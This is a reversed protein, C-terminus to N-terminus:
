RLLQDTFSPRSMAHPLNAGQSTHRNAPALHTFWRAPKAPAVTVMGSVASDGGGGPGSAGAVSGSVSGVGGGASGAAAAVEKRAAMDALLHKGHLRNPALQATDTRHIQCVRFVSSNGTLNPVFM